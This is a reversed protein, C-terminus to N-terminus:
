SFHETIYESMAATDPLPRYESSSADLAYARVKDWEMSANNLVMSTIGYKELYTELLEKKEDPNKFNELKFGVKKIIM